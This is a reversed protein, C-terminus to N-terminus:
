FESMQPTTNRRPPQLSSNMQKYNGAELPKWCGKHRHQFDIGCCELNQVWWWLGEGKQSGKNVPIITMISLGSPHDKPRLIKSEDKQLYSKNKKKIIHICIHRHPSLPVPFCNSTSCFLTDSGRSSSNSVKFGRSSFYMSKVVSGERWVRRNWRLVFDYNSCLVYECDRPVLTHVNPHPM